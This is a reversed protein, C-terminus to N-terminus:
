LLFNEWGIDAEVEVRVVSLLFDYFCDGSGGYLRDGGIFKTIYVDRDYRQFLLFADGIKVSIDDLLFSYVISFFFELLIEDFGSEFIKNM